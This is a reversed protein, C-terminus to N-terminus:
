ATGLDSLVLMELVPLSRLRLDNTVFCSAGSHLATALQISDPTSIKHKARLAAAEEAMDSTLPVTTLGRAHLLISRYRDAVRENHYRLPQVLVELLTVTSTVMTFDGRDLAEFLPRVVGIYAPNEEILYVLPATDLGVVRGQLADLWGM